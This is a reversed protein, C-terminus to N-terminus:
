IWTCARGRCGRCCCVASFCDFLSTTVNHRSDFVTDVLLPPSTSSIAPSASSVCSHACIYYARTPVIDLIAAFSLAASSFVMCLACPLGLSLSVTIFIHTTREQDGRASSRDSECITVLIVSHLRIKNDSSSFCVSFVLCSRHSTYRLTCQYGCVCLLADILAVVLVIARSSADHLMLTDTAGAAQHAAFCRPLVERACVRGGQERTMARQFLFNFPM